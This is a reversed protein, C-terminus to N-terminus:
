MLGCSDRHHRAACVTTLYRKEVDFWLSNSVADCRIETTLYRKEVDFWLQAALAAEQIATTLYRKEVDFWLRYRM